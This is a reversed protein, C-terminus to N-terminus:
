KEEKHYDITQIKKNCENCQYIYCYNYEGFNITKIFQYQGGCPCIGNNWIKDDIIHLLILIIALIITIKELSLEKSYNIQKM